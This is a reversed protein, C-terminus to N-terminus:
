KKVLEFRIFFYDNKKILASRVNVIALRDFAIEKGEEDTYITIKCPINKNNVRLDQWGDDEHAGRDGDQEVQSGHLPDDDLDGEDHLGAHVGRSPLRDVGCSVYEDPLYVTACGESLWAPPLTSLNVLHVICM